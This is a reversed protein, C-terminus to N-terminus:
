QQAEAVSNRELVAAEYLKQEKEKHEVSFRIMLVFSAAIVVLGGLFMLCTQIDLMGKLLFGAAVAGM